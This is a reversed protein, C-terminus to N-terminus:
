RHTSREALCSPRVDAIPNGTRAIVMDANFPEESRIFRVMHEFLDRNTSNPATKPSVELIRITDCRRRFHGELGRPQTLPDKNTAVALDGLAILNGSQKDKDHFLFLKSCCMRNLM